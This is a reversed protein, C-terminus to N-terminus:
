STEPHKKLKRSVASIQPWAIYVKYICLQLKSPDAASQEKEDEKSKYARKM